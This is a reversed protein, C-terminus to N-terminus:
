VSHTFLSRINFIVLPTCSGVVYSEFSRGYNSTVIIGTTGVDIASPCTQLFNPHDLNINPRTTGIVSVNMSSTPLYSAQYIADKDGFWCSINHWDTSGNTSKWFTPPIQNNKYPYCDVNNFEVTAESSGFVRSTFNKHLVSSLIIGLNGLNISSPSVWRTDDLNIRPKVSGLLVVNNNFSPLIPSSQQRSTDLYWNSLNFWDQDVVANWYLVTSPSAEFTYVSTGNFILLPSASGFVYADFTNYVTSSAELGLTGVDISSPSVWRSDDM